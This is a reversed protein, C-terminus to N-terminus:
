QNKQKTKNQTSTGFVLSVYINASPQSPFVNYLYFKLFIYFICTCKFIQPHPSSCFFVIFTISIFIPLHKLYRSIHPLTHVVEPTILMPPKLAPKDQPAQEEPLKGKGLTLEKKTEPEAPAAEKQM